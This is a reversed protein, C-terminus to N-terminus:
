RKVGVLLRVAPELKKGGNLDTAEIITLYTGSGVFRGKMNRGDWYFTIPKGKEETQKEYIVTGLADYIKLVGHVKVNELMKAQPDVVIKVRNTGDAVFPNPGSKVSFKIPLSKVEVSVLRNKEATQWNENEDKYTKPAKIRVSDGNEAIQIKSTSFGKVLYRVTNNGSEGLFKLTIEYE